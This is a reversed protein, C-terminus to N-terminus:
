LLYVKVSTCNELMDGGAADWGVFPLLGCDSGAGMIIYHLHCVDGSFASAVQALTIDCFQLAALM